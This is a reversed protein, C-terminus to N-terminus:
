FLLIRKDLKPKTLKAKRRVELLQEYALETYESVTSNANYEKM